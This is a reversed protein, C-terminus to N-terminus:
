HRSSRLIQGPLDSGPSVTDKGNSRILTGNVIVAEIGFADSILRDAGAPLDYVRRLPSCGVTAPDFVVVDAALGRQLRGRDDLALLEAPRSTLSRVAEELSLVGKERVWHSLLHTSFCADCLQSLHAGADSLGLVTASSRLLEAVEAEDTNAIAMRFRPQLDHALSLDLMLDVAHVGREAAVEELLREELEPEESLQSIVTRDWRIAFGKLRKFAERFGPDAFIAKKGEHDARMVPKFLDHSEFIFPKAMQFEFNLPRCTVQPYVGVGEAQLEESRELVARHGGPGSLGAILATWTAPRGMQRAIDALEETALDRGAAVQLTGLGAEGLTAALTRFEDLSAARSPVPRGDSVNHTPARSTSFGLAGADLAERVLRRMSEVEAVTAERETAEEGMVYTRLPTHALLAGVNIAIGRREIADLYEPFTEFPWDDGVGARLSDLEMGEVNELIRLMLDRHEPRTPAVGLGCNGMVVATVGHWPSITLMPDWIVQADYHSHIDIFGPCVIRGTADIVQRAAGEVRGLAAIKGDAIGVDGAYGPAGSGDIITGGNIRLEFEM